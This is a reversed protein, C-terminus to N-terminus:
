SLLGIRRLMQLFGSWMAGGVEAFGLGMTGAVVFALLVIDLTLKM